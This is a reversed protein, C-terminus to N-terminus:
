PSGPPRFQDFIGTDVWHIDTEELVGSYDAYFLFRGDPTVNPLGPNTGLLHGLGRPESWTGGPRLFSIFLDYERDPDAPRNSVFLLYSGDPAVCPDFERHESNVPAGLNEVSTYKGDELRARYIDIKGLGNERLSHFYITKDNALSPFGSYSDAVNVPYELLRPESWDGASHEAVWINSPQAPEGNITAPRRSTFYFARGFPAFHFDWDAHEGNFSPRRPEGWIGDKQESFWIQEPIPQDRYFQKYIFLEGDASFTAGGEFRGDTSIIGPAFVEPTTGPPEQGLYPGKLGPFGGRDGALPFLSELIRGTTQRWTGWGSGGPIESTGPEYGRKALAEKLLQGPTLGAPDRYEHDTW